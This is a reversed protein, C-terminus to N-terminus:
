FPFSGLLQLLQCYPFRPFLENKGQTFHGLPTFDLKSQAGLPSFGSGSLPPSIQALTTAFDQIGTTTLGKPLFLYLYTSKLENGLGLPSVLRYPGSPQTFFLLQMRGAQGPHVRFAPTDPMGSFLAAPCAPGEEQLGPSRNSGVSCCPRPQCRAGGVPWM